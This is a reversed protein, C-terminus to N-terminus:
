PDAHAPRRRRLARGPPRPRRLFRRPREGYLHVGAHISSAGCSRWMRRRCAASGTSATRTRSGPSRSSNRARSTVWHNLAPTTWPSCRRSRGTGDKWTWRAGTRGCCSARRMRLRCRSSEYAPSRPWTAPDLRRGDSYGPAYLFVLHRGDQAVHGRIFERQRASLLFTNAFIVARYPRLDVRELDMLHIPDYLAGSMSVAPPMWDAAAASVPDVSHDGLHYFVHTDYVLLVDAESQHPRDCREDLLAKLRRIDAMLEPHDWWGAQAAAPWVPGFDYFWLGMGRAFASLVNRRLLGISNAASGHYESRDTEWKM